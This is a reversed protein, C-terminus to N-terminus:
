HTSDYGDNKFIDAERNRRKTLGNMVVGGSKNWRPFEAPVEDYKSNNLKKLMTSSSFNGKGVNFSFSVLADFEYQHLDVTVKSQIHSVFGSLDEEFLEEADADSLGDKFNQPTTASISECSKKGGVLHGYGITCYGADDDYLVHKGEEKVESEWGKLFDIGDQSFSLTDPDVRDEEDDSADSESGDQSTFGGGQCDVAETFGEDKAVEVMKKGKIDDETNAFFEDKLYDLDFQRVDMHIWTDAVWSADRSPELSFKNKSGWSIQAGNTPIIIKDRLDEIDTTVRTRTGDKNFHIDIAKGMHNTSSRSHQENDKHCRYGSSIKNISYKGDEKKSLYFMMAKYAWLLSRHIGPYEYKRSKEAIASDQKQTAFKGQGFGTCVGCDCELESFEIPYKAEFEDIAELTNGCVTGTPDIEMYDEQFQKIMATTKDSFKETPVNGGFGALRINLEQVLKNEHEKNICGKGGCIGGNMVEFWSGEENLFHNPVRSDDGAGAYGHYKVFKSEFDCMSNESHVDVLAYLLAKKSGVCDLADIWETIKDEEKPSLTIKAIGWDAFDDKNAIDDEDCYEGITTRVCTTDAGDQQVTVLQDKKALCDEAGQLINILVKEDRLHKTETIIYLENSISAKTVEVFKVETTKKAKKTVKIVEDIFLWKGKKTRKLQSEEVGLLTAIKPLTQGSTTIHDSVIDETGNPDLVLKETVERSAFYVKTVEQQLVKLPTCSAKVSPDEILQVSPM